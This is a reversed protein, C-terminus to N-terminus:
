NNHPVEFNFLIPPMREFGLSVADSGDCYLAVATCVNEQAEKLTLGEAVIPANVDNATYIGAGHLINFHMISKMDVLNIVISVLKLSSVHRGVFCM